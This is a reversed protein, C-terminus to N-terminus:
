GRIIEQYIRGNSIIHSVRGGECGYTVGLVVDIIFESSKCTSHSSSRVKNAKMIKQVRSLPLLSKGAERALVATSKAKATTRVKGKSRGSTKDEPSPPEGDPPQDVADLDRHVDSM